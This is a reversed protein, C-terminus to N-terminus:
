KGNGTKQSDRMNNAEPLSCSKLRKCNKCAFDFNCAEGEEPESRFALYATMGALGAFAVGRGLTKIFERRNNM